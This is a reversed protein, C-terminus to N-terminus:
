GAFARSRRSSALVMVVTMTLMPWSTVSAPGCTGADAGFEAFEADKAIGGEDDVLTADKGGSGIGIKAGFNRRDGVDDIGCAAADRRAKDIRVGMKDKGAVAGGLKLLADRSGGILM